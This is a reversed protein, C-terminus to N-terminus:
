LYDLYQKGGISSKKQSTLITSLQAWATSPFLHLLSYRTLEEFRNVGEGLPKSNASANSTPSVSHLRGRGGPVISPQFAKEIM